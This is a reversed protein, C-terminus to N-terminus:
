FTLNDILIKYVHLINSGIHDGWLTFDILKTIVEKKFNIDINSNMIFTILNDNFKLLIDGQKHFDPLDNTLKKFMFLKVDHPVSEFINNHMLEMKQTKILNNISNQIEVVDIKISPRNFIYCNVLPLLLYIIKM